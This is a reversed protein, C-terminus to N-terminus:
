IQVANRKNIDTNKYKGPMEAVAQFVRLYVLVINQLWVIVLLIRNHLMFVSTDSHQLVKSRWLNATTSNLQGGYCFDLLANL